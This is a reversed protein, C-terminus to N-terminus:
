DAESPILVWLGFFIGTLGFAAAPFSRHAEGFNVLLINPVMIAAGILAQAIIGLSAKRVVHCVRGLLRRLLNQYVWFWVAIGACAGLAFWAWEMGSVHVFMQHFAQIRSSPIM